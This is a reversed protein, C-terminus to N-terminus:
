NEEEGAKVWEDVSMTAPVALVGVDKGNSTVDISKKETTAGTFDNVFKRSEKKSPLTLVIEDVLGDKGYHKVECGELIEQVDPDLEEMKKATGDSNFVDSVKLKLIGIHQKHLLDKYEAKRGELIQDQFDEIGKRIEPKSLIKSAARQATEYSADPYIEMYAKTGNYNHKIYAAILLRRKMPLKDFGFEKFNIITKAEKNTM